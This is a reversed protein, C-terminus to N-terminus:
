AANDDGKTEKVDNSQSTNAQRQQDASREFLEKTAKELSAKQTNVLTALAENAAEKVAREIEDTLSNASASMSMTLTAAVITAKTFTNM